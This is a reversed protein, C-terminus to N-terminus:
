FRDFLRVMMVIVEERTPVQHPSFFGEATSMIGAGTVQLVPEYGWESILAADTFSGDVLPLHLGIANALRVIVIASLERNVHNRPSFNGFEDANMIGLSGIKQANIDTTDNFLVRGAIERQMRMEYVNVALAAFDSRNIPRRLSRDMFPPLIGLQQARAISPAAFESPIHDQPNFSYAPVRSLDSGLVDVLLLMHGREINHGPGYAGRVFIATFSPSGPLTVSGGPAFFGDPLTVVERRAEGGWSLVMFSEAYFDFEIRTHASTTFHMAPMDLHRFTDVDWNWAQLLYEIQPMSNLADDISLFFSMDWGDHELGRMHMESAIWFWSRENVQNISIAGGVRFYTELPSYFPTRLSEWRTVIHTFDESVHTDYEYAEYAEFTVYEYDVEEAFVLSPNLALILAIMVAFRLFGKKM